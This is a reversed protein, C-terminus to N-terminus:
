AGVTQLREMALYSRRAYGAPDAPAEQDAVMLTAGADICRVWLDPWDLVGQGIDAWGDGLGGGGLGGDGDPALDKVHVSALRGPYRRLWDLPTAGALALRAMDAQWFLGGEASETLVLDLPLSGDPLAALEWDHNRYCLTLGADILRAALGGLERGLARWGQQAMGEGAYPPASVVLYTAGCMRAGAVIEGPRHRLASLSVHVSPAALGRVDLNARVPRADVIHDELLEVAPFGARGAADLQAEFGDLSRLTNLQISLTPGPM